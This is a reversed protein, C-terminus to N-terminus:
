LGLGEGTDFWVWEGCRGSTMGVSASSDMRFDSGESAFAMRQQLAPIRRLRIGAPREREQYCLNEVQTPPAAAEGWSEGREGRLPAGGM